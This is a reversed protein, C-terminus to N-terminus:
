RRPCGPTWTIRWSWGRRIARPALPRMTEDLRRAARLGGHELDLKGAEIKSFDLIDNILGLLSDASIQVTDLHEQQESTLTTGLALETM